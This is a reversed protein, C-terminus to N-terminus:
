QGPGPVEATLTVLNTQLFDGLICGFGKKRDFNSKDFM